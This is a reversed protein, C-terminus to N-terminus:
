QAVDDVLVPVRCLHDLPREVTEFPLTDAFLQIEVVESQTQSDPRLGPFAVETTQREVIIAGHAGEAAHPGCQYRFVGSEDFRWQHTDGENQTSADEFDFESETQEVSDGDSLWEWTVTTGSDIRAAAPDFQVDDGTEITVSGEGTLDEISDMDDYGSANNENLYSDVREEPTM